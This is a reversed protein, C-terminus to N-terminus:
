VVSPGRNKTTQPDGGLRFPQSVSPYPGSAPFLLYTPYTHTADCVVENNSLYISLYTLYISLSVGLGNCM